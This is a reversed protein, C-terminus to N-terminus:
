IIPDDGSVHYNNLQAVLDLINVEGDKNLDSSSTATGYNSGLKSVDLSNIKNDFVTSIEGTKLPHTSIDVDSSSATAFLNFGLFQEQLHESGRLYFHYVGPTLSVVGLDDCLNRSARGFQDTTFSVDGLYVPGDFYVESTVDTSYNEFPITTNLIRREPIITFDVFCAAVEVNVDVSEGLIMPEEFRRGILLVCLVALSLCMGFFCVGLGFLRNMHFNSFMCFIDLYM